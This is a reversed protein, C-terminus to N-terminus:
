EMPGVREGQLRNSFIFPLFHLHIFTNTKLSSYTIAALICHLTKMKYLIAIIVVIEFIRLDGNIQRNLLNDINKQREFNRFGVHLTIM